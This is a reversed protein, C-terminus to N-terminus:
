ELLLKQMQDIDKIKEKYVIHSILEDGVYLNIINCIDTREIVIIYCEKM